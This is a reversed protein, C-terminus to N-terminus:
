SEGWLDDDYTGTYGAPRAPEDDGIRAENVVREVSPRALFLQCGSERCGGTRFGGTLHERRLRGCRCMDLQFDRRATTVDSM